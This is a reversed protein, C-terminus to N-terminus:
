ATRQPGVPAPQPGYVNDVDQDDPVRQRKSLAAAIAYSVLPTLYAFFTYPAWEVVAIGLTGAFLAGHINWPIIHSMTTGSDAISTSLVVPELRQRKYETRFMRGVLEISTYPDATVVNMGISSAMTVGILSLVNRTWNIVPTVIRNLIGVYDVVAGFAAAVLVLWITTLMSATGGGAFVRDLDDNGSDLSFGNAFTDIGVEIVSGVYSRGDDALSVILDHQTFGALVVAAIAPIMLSLFASM